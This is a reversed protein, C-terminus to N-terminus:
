NEVILELNKPNSDGGWQNSAWASNSNNLKNMGFLMSYADYGLVNLWATMVASTQGTYCYTVIPKSPDLYKYSNDSLLLPLIRHAGDIHGFGLYDAEKFYNNIFYGSPNDLVEQATKTKFKNKIVEKVRKKLLDEKSDITIGLDPDKFEADKPAETKVLKGSAINGINDNWSKATTSNWGSMGWKLAHTKKFGYMRMLATAYCATQGSYCVILIKKNGALEGHELIDEFPVNIAGKIHGSKWADISRIDIIYHEDLFTQLVAEAPAPTVFKGIEDNEDIKNFDLGSGVMHIKLESFAPKGTVPDDGGDCSTLFLTPIFLLGILILSIKKM